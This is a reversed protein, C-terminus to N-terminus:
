RKTGVEHHYEKDEMQRDIVDQLVDFENFYIVKKTRIVDMVSAEQEFLYIPPNTKFAYALQEMEGISGNKTFLNRTQVLENHIEYIFHL